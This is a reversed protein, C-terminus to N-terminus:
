IQIKDQNESYWDQLHQMRTETIGSLSAQTSLMARSTETIAGDNLALAYLKIYGWEEKTHSEPMINMSIASLIQILPKRLLILFVGILVGGIWGQGILSEMLESSTTFAIAGIGAFVAATFTKRLQEDIGMVEHKIIAYTFVVGEFFAASINLLFVFPIVAFFVITGTDDFWQENFVSMDLRFTGFGLTLFVFLMTALASCLIKVIFGLRIAYIEDIVDNSKKSKSRHVEIQKGQSLKTQVGSFRCAWQFLRCM